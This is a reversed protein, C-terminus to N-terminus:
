SMVVVVLAVLLAAVISWFARSPREGRVPADVSGGDFLLIFGTKGDGTM